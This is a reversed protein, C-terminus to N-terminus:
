FFIMVVGSKLVIRTYYNDVGIYLQQIFFIHKCQRVEIVEIYQLHIM